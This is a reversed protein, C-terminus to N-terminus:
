AGSAVTPSDGLWGRARLGESENVTHRVFDDRLANTSLPSAWGTVKHLFLDAADGACLCYAPSPIVMLNLALVLDAALRSNNNTAPQEPAGTASRPLVPGTIPAATPPLAEPGVVVPLAPTPLGPSVSM